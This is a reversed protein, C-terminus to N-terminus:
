PVADLVRRVTQALVAGPVPKQIFEIAGQDILHQAADDFEYGSLLLIKASPCAKRLHPFAECGGMEPMIMDLIVLHIDGGKRWATEIAERGHRATLVSYGLREFLMRTATLIMSQDDVILITESGRPLATTEPPDQSPLGQNTTPFYLSVRTGAGPGSHIEVHGDHNKMIGYVAALGLGRGPAKTSFFPEYAHRITEAPM